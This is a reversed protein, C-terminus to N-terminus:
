KGGIKICGIHYIPYREGEATRTVLRAPGKAQHAAPIDVTISLIIQHSEKSGSLCAELRTIRFADQFAGCNVAHVDFTTVRYDDLFLLLPCM